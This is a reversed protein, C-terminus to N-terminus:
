SVQDKGHKGEEELQSYLCYVECDEPLDTQNVKGTLFLKVRIGSQQKERMFETIGESIYSSILVLDTASTEFYIENLFAEFVQSSQLPLRALTRMMELVYEEGWYEESIVRSEEGLAANAFLRFPLQSDLTSDLVAACVKVGLEVENAFVAQTIEAERSQVNLIVALSQRSTYDNNHVMIRQEKATAGWHIKNMSDRETYERVGSVYFPDESLQRKVIVDGLLYQPSVFQEELAIPKPLVTIKSSVEVPHSLSVNGFLDTSVLVVKQIEFEGRKLCTVKWKRQVKQYSKVMFFSPVFRSQDTVISQAGAFDLWKPVTIESKLWPVPFWKQNVVTEVLEIEDGEMAEDTSLECTYTLNRFTYQHFLFDQLSIIAFIAIVLALLEM